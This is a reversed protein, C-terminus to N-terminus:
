EDDLREDFYVKMSDSLSPRRFSFVQNFNLKLEKRIDAIGNLLNHRDNYKRNKRSGHHLHFVRGPCFTIRPGNFSNSVFDNDSPDSPLCLSLLGLPGCLSAILGSLGSPGNPGSSSIRKKFATYAAELAKPFNYGAPLKQNLWAAASLTDGSGTVAHRFFGYQKFWARQFAWGFGPHYTTNYYAFHKQKVISERTLEELKYTLDLWICFEFPQVIEHDDLLISVQTYWDPSEFIIDADLFLLKTYWKSVYQELVHCLQEKHFMISTGKLHIADSIEPKDFYLELTYYKISALKLKEITYLYNMLLRKSKMSNFYVFCVAMDSRWPKAYRSDM